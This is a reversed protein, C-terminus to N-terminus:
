EHLTKLEGWTTTAKGVATVNGRLHTTRLTTVNGDLSVDQIQYYYVVNPKASTDTYTYATRESTTGQGAILKTNIKTFEGDRKESRLINFGANNLESETVWRIVIEGTDKMREPRFKSLSVPLVGGTTYGPSGVDSSHGYYTGLSIQETMDFRMWAQKMMGDIRGGDSMMAEKGPVRNISVRNGDDNMGAPLMWALDAFSQADARRTNEPAAGLNGVMDVTQHKNADGENTKAKLTIQFGYPNLMTETRKKKANKVRATPLKANNSALRSVVLYTQGPPIRSDDLDIRETLKGDYDEGDATDNHNVIFLSWNSVNVGHTKSTNHLEIWQSFNRTNDFMIESIIVPDTANAGESVSANNPYGPTGGHADDKETNRRYGIGTWGVDRFATTGDEDKGNTSWTGWIGTHQRWHVRDKTLANRSFKAENVSGKLPWLNTFNAEEQAVKLGPAHGAIDAYNDDKTMDNNKRLILAFQGNDPDPIGDNDFNVVLYRPSDSNVGNVQDNAGKAVNWGTALPHKQDGAPDTPTVILLSNAAMNAKDNDPFEFLKKEMGVETAFSVHWKKPNQANLALFEIWEYKKDNGSRNAVENFIINGPTFSTAAVNTSKVNGREEAGPSGRHNPVYLRRSAKWDGANIGHNDALKHKDYLRYMSIYERAPTTDDTGPTYGNKGHADKDANDSLAWGNGIANSVRDLVTRGFANTNANDGAPETIDADYVAKTDTKPLTGSKVHLIVGRLPVDYDNPNYIEIWQQSVVADTGIAQENLAWMIESIVLDQPALDRMPTDAKGDHDVGRFDDDTDPAAAADGDVDGVVPPDADSVPTKIGKLLITGKSDGFFLDELNPWSGADLSVQPDAAFGEATHWTVVVPTVGAPLGHDAPTTTAAVVVRSKAALAAATDAFEGIMDIQAMAPAAAFVLGLILIFSALSFTLRNSM